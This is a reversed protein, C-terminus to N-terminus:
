HPAEPVYNFCETLHGDWHHSRVVGSEITLTVLCKTHHISKANRSSSVSDSSYTYVTKGSELQEKGAPSGWRTVVDEQKLGDWKALRDEILVQRDACGLLSLVLLMKRM